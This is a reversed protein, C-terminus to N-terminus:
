FLIIKNEHKDYSSLLLHLSVLNFLVTNLSNLKIVLITQNRTQNKTHNRILNRPQNTFQNPHQSKHQQQQHSTSQNTTQNAAMTTIMAAKTQNLHKNLAYKRGM